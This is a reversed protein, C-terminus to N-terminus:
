VQEDDNPDSDSDHNAKGPRTRTESDADLWDGADDPSCGALAQRRGTDSPDYVTPNPPVCDDSVVMRVMERRECHECLTLDDDVEAATTEIMDFGRLHCDAFLHFSRISDSGTGVFVPRDPRTIVAADPTADPVDEPADGNGDSLPMWPRPDTTDHQGAHAGDREHRHAIM